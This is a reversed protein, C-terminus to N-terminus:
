KLRKLARKATDNGQAAAKEYWEKATQLNKEVGFGNEYFWGLNCQSRAHGQVAADYYYLAAKEYNQEVGKGYEYKTGLKFLEGANGELITGGNRSVAGAYKQGALHLQVAVFQAYLNGGTALAAFMEGAKAEDKAVGLGLQTMDALLLKAAVSGEGAYKEALPVIDAYAEGTKDVLADFKEVYGMVKAYDWGSKEQEILRLAHFVAPNETTGALRELAEAAGERGEFWDTLAAATEKDEVKM